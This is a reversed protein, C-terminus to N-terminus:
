TRPSPRGSEWRGERTEIPDIFFFEEHEPIEQDGCARPLPYGVMQEARERDLNGGGGGEIWGGVRVIVRGSREDIIANREPQFSTWWPWVYISGGLMVCRGRMELRSRFVGADGVGLTDAVPFIVEAQDPLPHDYFRGFYLYGDERLPGGGCVRPLDHGVLAEAELRRLTITDGWVWGGIRRLVEGDARVIAGERGEPRFTTGAPWIALKRDFRSILLCDGQLILRGGSPEDADRQTAAVPFLIRPEPTAPKEVPDGTCSPVLAIVALLAGIRSM